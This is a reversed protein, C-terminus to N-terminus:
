LYFFIIVKGIIFKQRINSKWNSRIYLHKNMNTYFTDDIGEYQKKIQERQPPTARTQDLRM